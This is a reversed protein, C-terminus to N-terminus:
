ALWEDVAQLQGAGSLSYTGASDWGLYLGNSISNTGGSQTFRGTGSNGIYADSPALSGGTM